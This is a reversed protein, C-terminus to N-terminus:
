RDIVCDQIVDLDGLPEGHARAAAAAVDGVTRGGWTHAAMAALTRPGVAGLLIAAVEVESLVYTGEIRRALVIAKSGVRPPRWWTRRDCAHVLGSVDGAWWARVASALMRGLGCDSAEAAAAAALSAERDHRGADALRRAALGLADWSAAPRSAEEASADLPVPRSASSASAVAIMTAIPGWDRDPDFRRLCAQAEAATLIM